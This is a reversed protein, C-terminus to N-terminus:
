NGISSSRPARRTQRLEQPGLFLGYPAADTRHHVNHANRIRRLWGFRSLFGVPLRGHIFGDHVVFYAMGFATMGYGVAIAVHSARGANAHFGGVILVIAISAHMLAFVDNFEFPGKRPVHHSRHAPWWPGHWLRDHLGRAWFEMACAVAVSVLWFLPDRWM